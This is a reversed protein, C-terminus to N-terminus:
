AWSLMALDLKIYVSIVLGPFQQTEQFGIPQQRIWIGGFLTDISQRDSKRRGEIIVLLM